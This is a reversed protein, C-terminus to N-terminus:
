GELWASFTPSAIVTNFRTALNFRKDRPYFDDLPLVGIKRFSPSIIRGILDELSLSEGAIWANSLIQAILIYESSGVPDAEIGVLALLSSVTSSLTSAYLDSDDM